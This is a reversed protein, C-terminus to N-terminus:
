HSALCQWLRRAVIVVRDLWQGAEGYSPYSAIEAFGGIKLATAVEELTWARMEFDNESSTRVGDREMEFREHILMLRSGDDLVTKSEFHLRGDPVAVSRRYVSNQMYRARTGTWERVDFILIGGLRLWQGFQRFMVSRDPDTVFGNLVGRCLVADFERAFSLDLLNGVLFEPVEADNVIRERAVGILASSRDAGYVKFGRKVLEVAYRGTGCGADLIDSGSAVGHQSLVEEIFDVRSIIPEALLLDYAWAFEHYFPRASKIEMRIM